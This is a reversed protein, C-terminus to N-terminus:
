KRPPPAVSRVSKVVVNDFFVGCAHGPRLDACTGVADQTYEFRLQATSGEMGPLRMRVHKLGASEGSWASMDQFYATNSSRPFHKPYHRREGTTFEDAFAEVLVSRLLRGPTLDAIRLLFGDFAFVEFPPFDEADYCVDFEVTVYDADAPVEFAPSFLREFRTAGGLAPGDEANAHFAGNSLNCPSSASPVFTSSTTWPVTNAGGAHATTWGVPLSGTPTTEFDESLLTTAEPTGTRLTHHLVATRFRPGWVHLELEIPTGPVFSRSLALRFANRGERSQGPALRPYTAWPVLVTVGPTSTTLRVALGDIARASIPNTVYNRLVADLKLFDRPDINGNGGSEDVVVDILSVALSNTEWDRQPVRKFAVDPITMNGSPQGDAFGLPPPATEAYVAFLEGRQAVAQNYDGLNPQGTDNGWGANFPRASLPLPKSWRRGGDDSFVYTAETVDGSPLLGQDYYFVYVRGTHEDVTVWPFWQARDDGPRSNIKVPESFTLGGDTSRQFAIDAGDVTDNDAYVVYLNGAHRGGSNDVAMAPSTNNRDNGLVHDMTLFEPALETAPGWTAGNDTSRAFAVTNGLGSLVGPDPFRRWAVYVDDSGNGAFRPISAQGDAPTNGIVARSSWTPPTATKMDDSYSVSIEVGGPAAPTFNSWSMIVRGTEPDVDMFEKDAADVPAGGSSVLGNPNTAATVVFPGEWTHGCDTSRHVGMTQAAATASFKTVVISSYIFTCEGLYKVEPDGFVQPLRTTGIVDTGPSPLQGGDVFTRGGDDSYMFGSVSVPNLTFGRTDNFGVVIHQGTADVALSLEAQGGPASERFGGPCRPDNTCGEGAATASIGATRAGAGQGELLARARAAVQGMDSMRDDAEAQAVAGRKDPPRDAGSPVSLLLVAAVPPVLRLRGVVRSAFM